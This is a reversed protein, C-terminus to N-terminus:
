TTEDLPKDSPTDGETTTALPKAEVYDADIIPTPPQLIKRAIGDGLSGFLQVVLNGGLPQVQHPFAKDMAISASLVLRYLANFDKKGYSQSAKQARIALVMATNAWTSRVLPQKKDHPQTMYETLTKDSYLNRGLGHDKPPKVVELPQDQPSGTPTDVHKRKPM